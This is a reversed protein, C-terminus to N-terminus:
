RQQFRSFTVWGNLFTKIAVMAHYSSIAHAMEVFDQIRQQNLDTLADTIFQKSETSSCSSSDDDDDYPDPSSSASDYPNDLGIKYIM